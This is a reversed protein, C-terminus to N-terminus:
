DLNNFTVKVSGSNYGIELVPLVTQAGYSQNWEVAQLSFESKALLQFLIEAEASKERIANIASGMLEPIELKLVTRDPGAPPAYDLDSHFIKQVWAKEIDVTKTVNNIGDLTEIRLTFDEEALLKQISKAAHMSVDEEIKIFITEPLAEGEDATQIYSSISVAQQTLWASYSLPQKKDDLFSVRFRYKLIPHLIGFGAGPVGPIDSLKTM